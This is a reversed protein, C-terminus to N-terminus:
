TVFQYKEIDSILELIVDNLRLIGDWSYALTSLDLAPYLDCFNFSKNWVCPGITVM